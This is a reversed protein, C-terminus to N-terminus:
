RELASMGGIPVPISAHLCQGPLIRQQFSSASYRSSDLSFLPLGSLIGALRRSDPRPRRSASRGPASGGRCTDLDHGAGPMETAPQWDVLSPQARDAAARSEAGRLLFRINRGVSCQGPGDALLLQESEARVEHQLDDAVAQVDVILPQADVDDAVRRVLEDDVLESPTVHAPQAELVADVAEKVEFAGSGVHIRAGSDLQEVALVADGDVHVSKGSALTFVAFM